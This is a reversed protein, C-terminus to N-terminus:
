ASLRFMKPKLFSLVTACNESLDQWSTIDAALQVYGCTPVNEIPRDGVKNCFDTLGNNHGVIVVEALAEDLRQVWDLLDRYEFTYLAPDVKWTIERETLQYSLHEITSQARVAASCFVPEFRCGAKWIPEAMLECDSVGRPKLPREIDSLSGDSWSSKAHRILHLKKM